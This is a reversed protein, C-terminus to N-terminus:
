KVDNYRFQVVGIVLLAAAVVIMTILAQWQWGNVVPTGYSHFISLSIVWDPLKLLTQLFEALFACSLYACALGVIVGSPLRLTLAYVATAIILEPGILSLSAAVVNGTDISLGNAQAALFVAL